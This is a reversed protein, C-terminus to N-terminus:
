WDLTMQILLHHSSSNPHIFFCFRFLPCFLHIKIESEVNRQQGRHKKHKNRKFIFLQLCYFLLVIAVASAVPWDRNLFFEYFLPVRGIMLTRGALFAPIVYEGIAPIFVLLCGAIIGPMSLPLTVGLFGQRKKAGLDSAAELLRVDLKVLNAYLPLIM